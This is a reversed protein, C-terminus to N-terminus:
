SSDKLTILPRQLRPIAFLPMTRIYISFIISGHYNSHDKYETDKCYICDLPNSNANPRCLHWQTSPEAYYSTTRHNCTTYQSIYQSYLQHIPTKDNSQPTSTYFHRKYAYHVSPTPWTTINPTFITTPSLHFSKSTHTTTKWSHYHHCTTNTITHVPSPSATTPITCMTQRRIHYTPTGHSIDLGNTVRSYPKAPAYDLDM